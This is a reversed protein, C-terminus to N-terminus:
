TRSVAVAPPEALTRLEAEVRVEPREAVLTGCGGVTWGWHVVVPLVAAAVGVAVAAAVLRPLWGALLLPRRQPHQALGQM